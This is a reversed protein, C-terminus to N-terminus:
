LVKKRSIFFHKELKNITCVAVMGSNLHEVKSTNINRECDKVASKIAKDKSTFYDTYMDDFMNTETNWRAYKSVWVSAM